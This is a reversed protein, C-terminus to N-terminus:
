EPATSFQVSDRDPTSIYADSQVSSVPTSPSTKLAVGPTFVGWFQGWTLASAKTPAAHGDVYVVDVRNNHKGYSTQLRSNDSNIPDQSPGSNGAWFSDLWAASDSSGINQISGSTEAVAVTDSARSVSSAKFPKYDANMDGSPGVSGFVACCNFGYSLFGTITPDWDGPESPYTIGRRKKPCVWVKANPLLNAMLPAPTNPLWTAATTGVFWEIGALKGHSNKYNGATRWPKTSPFYDGNDGAYMTFGLAVQKTNNLCAIGQAKEKAKSLAPLLMAALIAIIAIVVLLEILTFAAKAGGSQSFRLPQGALEKREFQEM